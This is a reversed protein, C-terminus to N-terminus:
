YTLPLNYCSSNDKQYNRKEIICIYVFSPCDSM